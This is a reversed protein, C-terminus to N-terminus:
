GICARGRPEGSSERTESLESRVEEKVYKQGQLRGDSRTGETDARLGRWEGTVM